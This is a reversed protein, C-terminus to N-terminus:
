KEKDLKKIIDKLEKNSKEIVSLPVCLPTIYDANTKYDAIIQKEYVKIMNLFPNDKIDPYKFIKESIYRTIDLPFFTSYPSLYKCIGSLITGGAIKIPYNLNSMIEGFGDFTNWSLSNNNLDGCVRKVIPSIIQETIRNIIKKTFKETFKSIFETKKEPPSCTTEIPFYFVDSRRPTSRRQTSSRQTSRRQTSSRQTSSRPTSNRISHFSDTDTEELPQIPQIPKKKSFISKARTTLRAM